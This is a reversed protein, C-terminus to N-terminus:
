QQETASGELLCIKSIPREYTGSATRVEVARVLGDAGLHADIILGLPWQNRPTNDQSVIVLDGKKLNCKPKLWKQRVQLAPLYEQLAPLYEQIWRRWFVNALYQVQRWRRRYLDKSEFQGPPLSPGSRLMLLHSPTLPKDDRPDDSLKTIPRNNVIGEVVTLLTVLGEDDLIQQKMVGTLVSRVTRILREWVGGMHSAGPPNYIWSIEHKLLYEHIQDQNWQQIARRLEAQAGVFNTGNDSRIEKPEGRRAIFRELANIFSDTDLSHAVEIHVARISLCTFICGYRKVESRGRKVSFPGFYDVGVWTFPPEHPTVRAKPLDAMLQVETKGRSKKCAICHSLVSKVLKRGKLIWYRRRTEALVREVGAHGTRIHCDEIILRSIQHTYPLILQHKSVHCLESRTLRGGVRLLGTASKVPRLKSMQSKSDADLLTSQVYKIIALESGQLEEPKIRGTAPPKGQLIQKLRLVWSVAKKLKFWSSYYKLLTNTSDPAIKASNVMPTKKLEAAQALEACKFAPQNPWHTEDMQLFDPGKTWRKNEVLDQATMGRSADDGPNQATPVHRWQIPKTHDLIKAVRNAVYTQFRKGENQLYWLVITSDTWFVSEELAFELEQHVLKDLKMAEMAGALELRPITSGKLPALRAKAMVINVHIEDDESVLRLYSVAGYACESADSFHHLQATRVTKGAPKVCRPIKFGMVAPLQALWRGWQDELDRPLPDDWGKQLRCLHQFLMRAKLVFPSVYGLPDFITSLTSLVGRKTVPKNEIQVNFGFCDPEIHWLMGLARETPAKEFSVDQTVLAKGWDEKTITQMLESSNSIWKTLHFGRKALLDKVERALTIAVDLDDVSKLCDDVYFNKLITDLTMAHYIENHDQVIMRLAYNACSPSWVGGFLHSTMRLATSRGKTDDNEWWLFRLVDRDKPTVKVQHFMGEIDAMFAIPGQRFRLLVGILRNALDPGQHVIDNLSTGNHRAACDFVIRCKDPKKPNLIPHHPLYWVKGDGRHMDEQPVPEAYGRKLLQNMEFVYKTKLVNDRDLRKGLSHLRREAMAQNDALNPEKAKFPIDMTYHGDVVLKSEDWIQLAKRDSISMGPEESNADELAWLSDLDKELSTREQIFHSSRITPGFPDVPGNIVWGLPTRIAFPEGSRGKKVEEPMLLDSCDQGILLHVQDVDLEPIDLNRLHPWRELDVQSSLSSLDINLTPRVTVEPICRPSETENLDSVLLTIVTSDMQVRAQAITTLELHRVAGKAGVSNCLAETCYTANTGPDLMAYTDVYRNSDLCRVRAPVIPLALKGGQARVFNSVQNRPPAVSMQAPIAPTLPLNQSTNPNYTRVPTGGEDSDPRRAPIHLFKSHKQGCGEVACTFPRPCDRGYHGPRFCNVCLGKSLIFARRDKIRLSKFTMCQTLYHAQGCHLCPEVSRTKGPEFNSKPAPSAQIAFSGARRKDGKPKSLRGNEPKIDKFIVKGFVPDSAEDAALGTFKVLDSLQANRIKRVKINHNERLWRTQLHYPLKEVIALMSHSNDMEAAYGMTELTEQCCRLDDAFERLAVTGKVNPRSIIKKIWEQAIVFNNGFREELLHLALRYGDAPEKVLCCQLLSKARGRCYQMLCTLKTGPDASKNDVTHKFARIFPWYDLPNGDFTQLESRPLQLTDVLSQQQSRSENLVQHLVEALASTAQTEMNIHSSEWSLRPPKDHDARPTSETYLSKGDIEPQRPKHMPNQRTPMTLGTGEFQPNDELPKSHLQLKAQLEQRESILRLRGRQREIELRGKTRELEYAQQDIEMLLNHKEMELGQQKRLAIIEQQLSENKAETTSRSHRPSPSNDLELAGSESYGVTPEDDEIEVIWAYITGLYSSAQDVVNARYLEAETQDAESSLFSVYLANAEEFRTLQRQFTEIREKVQYLNKIDKTLLDIVGMSQTIEDKAWNRRAIAQSIDETLDHNPDNMVGDEAIETETSSM